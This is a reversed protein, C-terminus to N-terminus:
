PLGRPLSAEPLTAGREWPYPTAVSGTPMSSPISWGTPCASNLFLVVKTLAVMVFLFSSRNDYLCPLMLIPLLLGFQAYCPQNVRTQHLTLSPLSSQGISTCTATGQPPIGHEAMTYGRLWGPETKPLVWQSVPCTVGWSAEGILFAAKMSLWKLDAEALPEFPPASLAGLVLSLDWATVRPVCLPGRLRLAGKLFLSALRHSGMSGDGVLAHCSSIAAMYVKLTSHVRGSDLPSQLFELITAVPCLM